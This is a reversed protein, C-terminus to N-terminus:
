CCEGASVACSPCVLFLAAEHALALAVVACLGFVEALSAFGALMRVAVQFPPCKLAWFPFAQCMCVYLSDQSTISQIFMMAFLAASSITCAAAWFCLCVWVGGTCATM